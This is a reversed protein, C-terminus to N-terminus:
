VQTHSLNGSKRLTSRHTQRACSLCLSFFCFFSFFFFLRADELLLELVEESLSDGRRRLFRAAESESSLSSAALRRWLFTLGASWSHNAYSHRRHKGFGSSATSHRNHSVVVIQTQQLFLVLSASPPPPLKTVVFRKQVLCRLEAVSRCM